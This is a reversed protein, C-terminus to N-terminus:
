PMSLLIWCCFHVTHMKYGTNALSLINSITLAIKGTKLWPITPVGKEDKQVFPLM